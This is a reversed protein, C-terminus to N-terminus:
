EVVLSPLVVLLCLHLRVDWVADCERMFILTMREGQWGEMRLNMIQVVQRSGCEIQVCNSSSFVILERKLEDSTSPWECIATPTKTLQEVYCFCLHHLHDDQLLTALALCSPHPLQREAQEM